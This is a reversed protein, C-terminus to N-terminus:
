SVASPLSIAERSYGLGRPLSAPTLNVAILDAIDM